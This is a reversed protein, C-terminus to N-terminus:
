KCFAMRCSKLLGQFQLCLNYDDELEIMVQRMDGNTMQGRRADKLYTEQEVIPNRGEVM